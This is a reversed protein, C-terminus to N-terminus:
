AAVGDNILITKVYGSDDPNPVPIGIAQIIKKIYGTAM